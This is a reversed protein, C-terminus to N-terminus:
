STGLTMSFYKKRQPQLLLPMLTLKKDAERGCFRKDQYSHTAGTTPM